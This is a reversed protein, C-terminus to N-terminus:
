AQVVGDDLGVGGRGQQAKGQAAAAHGQQRLPLHLRFHARPAQAAQQRVDDERLLAHIGHIRVGLMDRFFHAGKDVKQAGEHARWVSTERPAAAGM